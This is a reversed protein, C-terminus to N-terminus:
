KVMRVKNPFFKGYKKVLRNYEAENGLEKEVRALMMITPHMNPRYKLINKFTVRAAEYQKKSMQNVGLNLCIQWDQPKYKCGKELGQYTRTSELYEATNVRLMYPAIILVAALIIIQFNDKKIYITTDQKLGQGLFFAAFFFTYALELPFAFLADSALFVLGAIALSSNRCLYLLYAFFALFVILAPIGWEVALELYGNHPSRINLRPQHEPDNQAYRSYNWEYNGPGVGLPNDQIMTLTNQWRTLRIDTSDAKSTHIGTHTPSIPDTSSTAFTLVLVAVLAVLFQNALGKPLKKYRVAIVLGTIALAVWVARTYLIYIYALTLGVLAFSGSAIQLILSIGLFESMINQHLMFSAAWREPMILYQYLGLLMGIVTLVANIKYIPKLSSLNVSAILIVAFCTWDVIHPYYYGPGTASLFGFFILLVVPFILKKQYPIWVNVRNLMLLMFFSVAALAGWRIDPGQAAVLAVISAAFLNDLNFHTKLKDIM